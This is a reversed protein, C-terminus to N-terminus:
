ETSAAEEPEEEFDPIAPQPNEVEPLKEGPVEPEPQKFELDEPEPEQFGPREIIEGGNRTVMARLQDKLEEATLQEVRGDVYGVIYVGDTPEGIAKMLDTDKEFPIDAPQSWPVAKEPGTEVMMITNSTGDTVGAITNGRTTDFVSGPGVFVQYRTKFADKPTDGDVPPVAVAPVPKEPGRGDFPKTEQLDLKMNMDDVDSGDGYVQVPYSALRANTGKNWPQSFDFGDHLYSQEVYPLLAVRWSSLAKGDKTYTANAPFRGYTDHYNLFALLIQKMNNSRMSRRAAAQMTEIIPQMKEPWKDFDAPKNLVYSGNKGTSKIEISDVVSQAMSTAPKDENEGDFLWLFIEAAPMAQDKYQSAMASVQKAAAADASTTEIQVMKDGDLDVVLQFTDINDMATNAAEAGPGAQQEMMPRLPDVAKRMAAMDGYAIAENDLGLATLKAIMAQNPQKADIMRKLVDENAFVMWGDGPFTAALGNNLYLTKGNYEVPRPRYRKLEPETAPDGGKDQWEDWAKDYEDFIDKQTKGEPMLPLSPDGKINMVFADFVKQDGVHNVLAGNMPPGKTPDVTEAPTKSLMFLTTDSHKLLDMMPDSEAPLQKLFMKVLPHQQVKVGQLRVAVAMEDTIYALEPHQKEVAEAAPTNVAPEVPDDTGPTGVVPAGGDSNAADAATTDAAPAPDTPENGGGCGSLLVACLAALCAGTLFRM